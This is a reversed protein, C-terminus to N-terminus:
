YKTYYIKNCGEDPLQLDNINNLLFEFDLSYEKDKDKSTVIVKIINIDTSFFKLEVLNEGFKNESVIEGNEITEKVLQNEKVCLLYYKSDNEISEKESNIEKANRLERTILDSTVRTSSQMLDQAVSKNYIKRSFMLVNFTLLIVIGILSLTLLLEILSM